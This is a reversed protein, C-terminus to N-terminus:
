PSVFRHAGEISALEEVGPDYFPYEKPDPISEALLGLIAIAAACLLLVIIRRNRRYVHRNFSTIRM